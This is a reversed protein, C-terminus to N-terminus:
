VGPARGIFLAVLLSSVGVVLCVVSVFHITIFGLDMSRGGMIVVKAMVLLIGMGGLFTRSTRREDM